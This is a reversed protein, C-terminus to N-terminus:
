DAFIRSYDVREQAIQLLSGARISTLLERLWAVAVWAWLVQVSAFGSHM